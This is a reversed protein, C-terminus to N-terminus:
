KNFLVLNNFATELAMHIRVHSGACHKKIIAKAICECAEITNSQISEIDAINLDRMYAKGGDPFKKAWESAPKLPTM